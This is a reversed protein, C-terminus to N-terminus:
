PSDLLLRLPTEKTCCSAPEVPRPFVQNEGWGSVILVAGAVEQWKRGSGAGGRVPGYHPYLIIIIIIIIIIDHLVATPQDEPEYRCRTVAPFM